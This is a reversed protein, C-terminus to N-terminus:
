SFKNLSAAYRHRLKTRHVAFVLFSTILVSFLIIAYVIGLIAEGQKVGMQLPLTALAAAALGKPVMVSMVSADHVLVDKKVVLKITVLRMFVMM